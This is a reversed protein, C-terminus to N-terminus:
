FDGAIYDVDGDIGSISGEKGLEYGAITFAALSVDRAIKGVHLFRDAAYAIVGITGARGLYPLTPIDMGSKDILGLAFGGAIIAYDYKRSGLHRHKKHRPKEIKTTRIVIPRPARPRNALARRVAIATSTRAM